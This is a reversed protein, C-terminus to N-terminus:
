EEEEELEWDEEDEDFPLVEELVAVEEGEPVNALLILGALYRVEELSGVEFFEEDGKPGYGVHGPSPQAMRSFLGLDMAAVYLDGRNVGGDYGVVTDLCKAFKKEDHEDIEKGCVPCEATLVESTTKM